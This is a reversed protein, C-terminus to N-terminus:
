AWRTSASCWARVFGVRHVDRRRHGRAETCRIFWTSGAMPPSRACAPSAWAIRDRRRTRESSWHARALWVPLERVGAAIPTRPRPRTASGDLLDNACVRGVIGPLLRCLRDPARAPISSNCQLHGAFCALNQGVATPASSPWRADAAIRREEASSSQWQRWRVVLHAGYGWPESEGEPTASVEGSVEGGSVVGVLVLAADQTSGEGALSAVSTAVDPNRRSPRSWQYSQAFM